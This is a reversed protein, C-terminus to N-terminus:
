RPAGPPLGSSMTAQTSTTASDPLPAQRVDATASFGGDTAASLTLIVGAAPTSGPRADFFFAETAERDSRGFLRQLVMAVAVIMPPVSRRGTDAFLEAFMTDPFLRHCERYLVARISGEGVRRDWFAATGNLLDAQAPSVGVSMSGERALIGDM